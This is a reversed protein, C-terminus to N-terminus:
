EQAVIADGGDEQMFFLSEPDIPVGQVFVSLHLLAGTVRGTAGSLGIKQGRRVEDGQKVLVKSMHVSMSVVGNGHDIYVCNGAFYFNGVLVVRGAEIAHIPSGQWARFDLGWHRRKTDGNFTRRLGFRSLMKGKVPLCFPVHWRRAPSQVSTAERALKREAVIRAQVTKPPKVMKPAVTLTEAGYEHDTVRVLKRFRRKEGRVVTEVDLAYLGPKDRLGTGLMAVSSVCGDKRVLEPAVSVGDWFLTLGELGAGAAVRVLFPQGVGVEAPMRVDVGDHAAASFVTLAVLALALAVPRLRIMFVEHFHHM